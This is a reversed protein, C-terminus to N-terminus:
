ISSRLRAIQPCGGQHSRGGGVDCFDLVSSRPEFRDPATRKKMDNLMHADSVSEPESLAQNGARKFFKSQCMATM